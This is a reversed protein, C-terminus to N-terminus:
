ACCLTQLITSKGVLRVWIKWSRSAHDTSNKHKRRCFRALSCSSSKNGWCFIADLSTMKARVIQTGTAHTTANTHRRSSDFYTLVFLYRFFNRYSFTLLPINVVFFLYHVSTGNQSIQSNLKLVNRARQLTQMCWSVVRLFFFKTTRESLVHLDRTFIIQKKNSKTGKTYKTKGAKLVFKNKLM